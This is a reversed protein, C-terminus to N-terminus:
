ALTQNSAPIDGEAPATFLLTGAGAADIDWVEIGGATCYTAVPQACSYQDLRADGFPCTPFPAAVECADCARMCAAFGSMGSLLCELDGSECGEEVNLACNDYCSTDACNEMCTECAMLSGILVEPSGICASPDPSLLCGFLMAIADACIAGCGCQAEVSGAPIFVLTVLVIIVGSWVLKRFM